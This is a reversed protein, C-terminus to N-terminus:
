GMVELGREVRAKLDDGARKILPVDEQYLKCQAVLAEVDAHGQDKFIQLIHTFRKCAQLEALLTGEAAKGADAGDEKADEEPDAAAPKPEPAPEEKAKEPEPDKKADTKKKSRRKGTTDGAGPAPTPPPKAAPEEGAKFVFSIEQGMPTAAQVAGTALAAIVQNAEPLTLGKITLGEENFEVRRSAGLVEAEGDWGYLKLIAM